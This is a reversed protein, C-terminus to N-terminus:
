ARRAQSGASSRRQVPKPAASVSHELFRPAFEEAPIPRSILYGQFQDCKLKGLAALQGQTEVGEATVRLELGHAMAIIAQIIAADDPDSEIDRVFTRDIKLTDIPLQKLYALSSYGTGFDDVALYTGLKGLKRLVAVNEDVNKLLMSETMELELYRPDLGTVNLLRTVEDAFGSPDNFQRASINVAIKVIPFGAAQWRQNQECATRLAWKGILEILGSEEAVPIFSNPPVLGRQPHQWRILAEIGVLRGTRIDMQPQYHLVFQDAELARRLETELQHREVARLNMEPSFFQFNNRGREKAHYMATDANKMLERSDEADNPYISIGISCSTNLTHSGVSIPRHLADIIKLAVQSADEAHALSELTVVFEDGGLRSLTDGGRICSAMRSSVEKLLLDGIHHGLSDNINKFRDLDLFLVGLKDGKRRAAIIGQELRDNFLLRNPLETLPDRTALYSIRAESQKMETVDRTTGRHGAPVGNEGTKVVAGVNLWVTAGSKCVFMHELNRYSGDAHENDKLWQRVRDVEGAPMFEAATHGILEEPAYGLVEFARPSVYTFRSDRDNEWMFEAATDAFDRFRQESSRLADESAKRQTVDTMVLVLVRSGDGRVLASKYVYMTHPIGAITYTGEYEIPKTKELALDDTSQLHAAREPPFLDYDTKGLLWERPRGLFRVAADNMSIFRHDESKVIIPSAVANIVDDLFHRGDAVALEAKERAANSELNELAFSINPGLRNLLGLLEADFAGPERAYLHLAGKPKGLVVLPFTAASRLGAQLLLERGSIQEENGVDNCIFVRGSALAIASATRGEPLAPDMSSFLQSALTRDDGSHAVTEMRKTTEDLMAFRVFDIGGRAALMDCVVRFLADRAPLRAIVENVESLISYYNRLRSERQAAIIQDTVDSGVGRYGQFVGDSSIIPHGSISAYRVEGDPRTRKLVVDRFARRALLDQEHQQRAEPPEFENPLEFRTKGVAAPGPLGAHDRPSLSVFKFRLNEDQEWYWDSSFEILSRFRVESARLALETQKIETIDRGIGRYGRFRGHEDFIPYGSTSTIRIEGRNNFRTVVLDRFPKREALLRDHANKEEDSIGAHPIEWRTMGIQNSAVTGANQNADYYRSAGLSKFRLNEDQEWYWEASLESLQRYRDVNRRMDHLAGAREANVGAVLLTTFSTIALFVHLLILNVGPDGIAFPGTGHATQWIATVFLVVSAITSHRLPCTAALLVACPLLAYTAREISLPSGLWGHFVIQAAMTQAALLGIARWTSAQRLNLVPNAAWALILPTILLIGLADGLWWVLWTKGFEAAPLAGAVWLSFPGITAAIIPSAAVGFIMLAGADRLRELKPDMGAWRTLAWRGACAELSNGISVGIASGFQGTHWFNVAFAGLAVAPLTRPGWLLLSALAIGSPAWVSTAIHHFFAFQLGAIGAAIYALAVAANLALDRVGWPLKLSSFDANM